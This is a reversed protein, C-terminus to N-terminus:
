ILGMATEADKRRTDAHELLGGLVVNSRSTSSRYIAPTRALDMVASLFVTSVLITTEITLAQV